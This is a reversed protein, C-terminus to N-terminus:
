RPTFRIPTRPTRAPPIARSTCDPLMASPSMFSIPARVRSPIETHQPSPLWTSMPNPSTSSYRPPSARVLATIACTSPKVSARANRRAAARTVGRLGTTTTLDPRVATPALAARDCVPATAPGYSRSRAPNACAPTLSTRRVSWSTATAWANADCGAAGDPPPIAM